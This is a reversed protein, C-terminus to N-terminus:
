AAVRLRRSLDLESFGVEGPGEWELAQDPDNFYLGDDAAGAFTVEVDLGSRHWELQIGGNSMPVLSPPATDPQMVRALFRLARAANEPRIRTAEYTDWGAQLTLLENLRGTVMELWKPAANRGCWQRLAEHAHQERGLWSAGLQVLPGLLLAEPESSPYPRWVPIDILDTSAGSAGIGMSLIPSIWTAHMAAGVLLDAATAELSTASTSTAGWGFPEAGAERILQEIELLTEDSM